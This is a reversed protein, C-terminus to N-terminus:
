QLDLDGPLHHAAAKDHFVRTVREGAADHNDRSQERSQDHTLADIPEIQDGNELRPVSMMGPTKALRADHAAAVANPKAARTHNAHGWGTATSRAVTVLPGMSTVTSSSPLVCTRCM